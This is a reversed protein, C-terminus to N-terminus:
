TQVVKKRSAIEKEKLQKNVEIQHKKLDLAKQKMQLEQQQNVKENEFKERQLPEEIQSADEGQPLQGEIKAYEVETLRISAEEKIRNSDRQIDMEEEHWQQKQAMDQKQQDQQMQFNQQELEQKKNEALEVNKAIEAISNSRYTKLLMSMTGSGQKISDVMAQRTLQLLQTDEPSSTVFVCM